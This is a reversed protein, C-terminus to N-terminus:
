NKDSPHYPLTAYFISGKGYASEVGVQGGQAEVIRKTLALGLGTGAYSKASGADLQHFKEFLRSIDQPKIGVGTDQVELRFQHNIDPRIRVTVQGNPPTFKLANSLYNNFVQLLKDADITIEGLRPDVQIAFHINKKLILHDFTTHMTQLIKNLDIKEPYFDMKNAEIKALDLVDNILKLLQNASSIINELFHKYKESAPDVAGDYILQTFGLIGNLPTRLEHSVNALFESKLRNAEQAAYTAKELATNQICLLEQSKELTDLFRLADQLETIDRSIFTYGIPHNKQDKRLTITVLATFYSGDKRKRTIEGSWAGNCLVENLVTELKGTSIEDPSYLMSSHKGIVEASSYGYLRIAGLNWAVILGDLDEAIISYQTSSEFISKLLGLQEVENMEFLSGHDKKPM